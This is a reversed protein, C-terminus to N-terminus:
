EEVVPSFKDMVNGTVFLGFIWTLFSELQDVDMKGFSFLGLAIISLIVAMLFKRGGISKIFENM